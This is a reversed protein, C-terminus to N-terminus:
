ICLLNTLLRRAGLGLHHCTIKAFPTTLALSCAVLTLWLLVAKNRETEVKTTLYGRENM